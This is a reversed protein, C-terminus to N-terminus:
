EGNIIPLIFSFISGEGYISEVWIKGDHLEVLKKCLSLGLGTGQFARTHSEDVQKFEKFIEELNEDKIGIGYDVVSFKIYDGENFRDCILEIRSHENSFKIANSLLNILVQKIRIPDFFTSEMYTCTKNLEITKSLLLPSVHTHVEDLLLSINISEYHLEMQGAEIKSIDLIQNILELLHRGSQLIYHIVDLQDEDLQGLTGDELLESFGIISNLPTRLEHSMNALFSTKMQDAKKLEEMSLRLQINQQIQIENLKEIEKNKEKIQTILDVAENLKASRALIEEILQDRSKNLLSEEHSYELIESLQIITENNILRFIHLEPFTCYITATSNIYQSYLTCGFSQIWSSNQSIFRSFNFQDIDFIITDISLSIKKLAVLKVRVNMKGKYGVNLMNYAIDLLVSSIKTYDHKSLGFTNQIMEIREVLVKLDKEYNIPFELLESM